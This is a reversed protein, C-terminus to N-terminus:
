LRWLIQLAAQWCGPTPSRAQEILDGLPQSNTVAARPLWYVNSYKVNLVWFRCDDKSTTTGPVGSRVVRCFCKIFPSLSQGKCLGAGAPEAAQRNELYECSARRAGARSSPKWKGWKLRTLIDRYKIKMQIEMIVLLVFRRKLYMNAM